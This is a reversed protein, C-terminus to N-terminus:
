ARVIMNYVEKQKENLRSEGDIAYPRCFGLGAFYNQLHDSIDKSEKLGFGTKERILKIAEVKAGVIM